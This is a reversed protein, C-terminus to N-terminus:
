NKFTKFKSAINYVLEKKDYQVTKFRNEVQYLVLRINHEVLKALAENDGQKIRELLEYAEKKSLPGPLKYSEVFLEDYNM